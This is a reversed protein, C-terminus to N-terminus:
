ETYYIRLFTLWSSEAIQMLVKGKRFREKLAQLFFSHATAGGVRLCTHLFYTANYLVPSM